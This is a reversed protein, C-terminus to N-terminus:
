NRLHPPKPPAPFLIDGISFKGDEDYYEAYAIPALKLGTAVALLGQFWVVYERDNDKKALIPVEELIIDAAEDPTTAATIYGSGVRSGATMPYALVPADSEPVYESESFPWPEFYEQSTIQMRWHLGTPGMGPYIRVGEYGRQHLVGVGQLLRLWTLRGLRYELSSRIREDTTVIRIEKVRTTATSLTDAAVNIEDDLLWEYSDTNILPFAISKVGLEDAVALCNRYSSELLSRDIKGSQYNSGPTHIVFRASLNFGHTWGAKGPELGNPFRAICEELLDHGAAQHIASDVSCGDCAQTNAANVIADVEQTTIDGQVAKLITM